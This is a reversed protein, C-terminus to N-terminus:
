RGSNVTRKPCALSQASELTVKDQPCSYFPGWMRCFELTCHGTEGMGSM